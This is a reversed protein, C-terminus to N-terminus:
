WEMWAGETKQNNATFFDQAKGMVPMVAPLSRGTAFYRLADPGHTLSHDKDSVENYDKDHRQITTLCRWLEPACCSGDAETDFTLKATLRVIGTQPDREEYPRLLEKVAVWGQERRADAKTLYIKHEAFSTAFSKLTEQRRAWLDPPAFVGRLTDGNNAKIMLQAAEKIIADKKALERYIRCNGHNDIYIWGVYFMDLGYDLWSYRRYYGPITQAKRQFHVETNLENFFCGEAQSLAEEITAPYDSQMNGEYNRKTREYWADDRSPDTQWPWFVLKYDNTGHLAGLVMKYFFSGIRMTSLGFVQGNEPKDGPRNITPFSARYIQAAWEMLGWEDFIVVDATLSAGSNQAAPMSMMVSDEGTPHRITVRTATSDWTLKGQVPVSSQEIFWTPLHRLMFEVRQVLGNADIETKSLAIIRKSPKLMLWLSYALVLWTCGLQRAKLFIMWRLTLMDNLSEIQKPWLNFKIVPNSGEKSEIYVYEDIFTKCNEIAEARMPAAWQLREKDVTGQKPM